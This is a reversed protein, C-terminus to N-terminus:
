RLLLEIFAGWCSTHEWGKTNPNLIMRVGHKQAIDMAQSRTDCLAMISIRNTISEIVIFENESLSEANKDIYRLVLEPTWNMYTKHSEVSWPYPVLMGSQLKVTEKKHNIYKIM